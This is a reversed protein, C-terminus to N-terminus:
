EEIRVIDDLGLKKGSFKSCIRALKVANTINAIELKGDRANTLTNRTVHNETNEIESFVAYVSKKSGDENTPWWRSIDIYAKVFM